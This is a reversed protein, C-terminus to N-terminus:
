SPYREAASLTGARRLQASQVAANPDKAGGCVTMPRVGFESRHAM